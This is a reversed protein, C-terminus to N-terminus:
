HIYECTNRNKERRIEAISQRPCLRLSMFNEHALIFAATNAAKSDGSRGELEKKLIKEPPLTHDHHLQYCTIRIKGKKAIEKQTAHVTISSPSAGTVAPYMQNPFYYLSTCPTDNKM